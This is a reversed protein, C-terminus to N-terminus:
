TFWFTSALRAYPNRAMGFAFSSDYRRRDMARIDRAAAHVSGLRARPAVGFYSQIAGLPRARSLLLRASEARQSKVLSRFLSRARADARARRTGRM